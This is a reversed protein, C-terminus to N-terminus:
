IHFKYKRQLTLIHFSTLKKDSTMPGQYEPVSGFIIIKALYYSDHYGILYNSVLERQWRMWVLAQLGALRRDLTYL